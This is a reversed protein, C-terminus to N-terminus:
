HHSGPPPRSPPLEQQMVHTCHAVKTQYIMVGDQTDNSYHPNPVFEEAGGLGGGGM